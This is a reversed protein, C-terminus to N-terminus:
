GSTPGCSDIFSSVFHCGLTRFQHLDHAHAFPFPTEAITPDRRVVRSAEDTIDLLLTRVEFNQPERRQLDLVHFGELRGDLGRAREASCPRSSGLVSIGDGVHHLPQRRDDVLLIRPPEFVQENPVL